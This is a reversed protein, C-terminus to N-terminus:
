LYIMVIIWIILSIVVSGLPYYANPKKIKGEKNFGFQIFAFISLIWGVLFVGMCLSWLRHPFRHPIQPGIWQPNIERLRDIALQSDKTSLDQYVSLSAQAFLVAQYAQLAIPINKQKYALDGIAFLSKISRGQYPSGPFHNLITQEFALIAMPYERGLLYKEGLHFNSSAKWFTLGFIILLGAFVASGTTM